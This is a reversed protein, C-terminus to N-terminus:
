HWKRSADILAIANTLRKSSFPSQIFLSAMPFSSLATRNVILQETIATTVGDEHAKKYIGTYRSTARASSKGYKLVSIYGTTFQLGIHASLASLVTSVPIMWDLVFSYPVAVWAVYLPNLLEMQSLLHATPDSIRFRYKVECEALGEAHAVSKDWQSDIQPDRIFLPQNRRSMVSFQDKPVPPSVLGRVTNIGDFIDSLLPLWGYQLELWINASTERNWKSFRNRRLQVGHLGLEGVANAFDRRRVANYARLLQTSREAIMVLTKPLGTLFESVDFQQDKAKILAETKAANVMNSAIADNLLNSLDVSTYDLVGNGFFGQFSAMFLQNSVPEFYGGGSDVITRVHGFSSRYLYSSAYNTNRYRKYALVGNELTSRTTSSGGASTSANYINSAALAAALSTYYSGATRVSILNSESTTGVTKRRPASVFM